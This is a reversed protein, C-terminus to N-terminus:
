SAVPDELPRIEYRRYRLERPPSPCPPYTALQDALASLHEYPTQKLDVIPIGMTLALDAAYAPLSPRRHIDLILVSVLDLLHHPPGLVLSAVGRLERRNQDSKTYLSFDLQRVLNEITDPWSARQTPRILEYGTKPPRGRHAYRWSVLAGYEAALVRGYKEPDLLRLVMRSRHRRLERGLLRMQEHSRWSPTREGLLGM